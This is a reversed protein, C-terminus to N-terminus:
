DWNGCMTVKLFLLTLDSLSLCIGSHHKLLGFSVQSWHSCPWVWVEEWGQLRWFHSLICKQQSFDGITMQWLLQPCNFCINLSNVSFLPIDWLGGVPPSSISESCSDWALASPCVSALTNEKCLDYMRFQQHWGDIRSTCYFSLLLSSVRSVSKLNPWQYWDCHGEGAESIGCLTDHPFLSVLCM